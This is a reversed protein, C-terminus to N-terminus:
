YDRGFYQWYLKEFVELLKRAQSEPEGDILAPNTAHYAPPKSGAVPEDLSDKRAKASQAPPANAPKDKAGASPRTAGTAPSTSHGDQKPKAEPKRRQKSQTVPPPEDPDQEPLTESWANPDKEREHPHCTDPDEERQHLRSADPDAERQYLRHADPDEERPPPHGAEPDQDVAPESAGETLENLIKRLQAESYAVVPRLGGSPEEEACQLVLKDLAEDANTTEVAEEILGPTQGEASTWSGDSPGSFAEDLVVAWYRSINQMPKNCFHGPAAIPEELDHRVSLTRRGRRASELIIAFASM